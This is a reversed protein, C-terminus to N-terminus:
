DSDQLLAATFRNRQEKNDVAAKYYVLLTLLCHFIYFISLTTKDAKWKKHIYIRHV